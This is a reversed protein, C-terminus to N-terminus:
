YVAAEMGLGRRIAEVECDDLWRCSGPEPVSDLTLMGAIKIRTLALVVYRGRAAMRRIQHNKGESLTVTCELCWGLHPQNNHAYQPDRFCRVPEVIARGCVRVVGHEVFSFPQALEEALASLREPSRDGHLQHMRPRTLLLLTYVKAKYPNAAEALSRPPNRLATSLVADSCFLMVGSTNQDLRGVLGVDCPFGAEVLCEYVTKRPSEGNDDHNRSRSPPKSDVTSCLANLPKHFLFYRHPRVGWLRKVRWRVYSVLRWLARLLKFNLWKRRWDRWTPM